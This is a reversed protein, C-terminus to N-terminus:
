ATGSQGLVLLTGALFTDGLGITAAPRQLYPTACCVVSRGGRESVPGYPPEHFEAQGPLGSPRCPRGKEARSAALLCGCLLAELERSPEGKTLTLAWADAHICLRPLDFAKSLQCAQDVIDGPEARFGRLEAQSMGLSTIVGALTELIVDRSRASACDGLELHVLHVGRRRWNQVLAVTQELAGKLENEALENFGSLIGAGARAAAAVSERYFDPDDDLRENGFRVITRSSRLPTASGFRVGATFEFIYHAPKDGPVAQLEARRIVGGPTAVQVDPHIVSLQRESRDQLSILAPAGLLALTQAAQAGTGGLGWSTVKLHKEVWDGGQPWDLHFEGGIGAAARKFLEGALAAEPTGDVAELLPQAEHLRVYGDVFTSLGCLVPRADRVHIPLRDLLDHYRKRWDM